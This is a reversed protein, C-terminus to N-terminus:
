SFSPPIVIATTHDHNILRIIGFTDDKVCDFTIEPTLFEGYQARLTFGSMLKGMPAFIHVDGDDDDSRVQAVIGLYPPSDDSFEVHEKSTGSTATNGTLAAYVALDKFAFQCKIQAAIIRSHARLIVDDGELRKSQTEITVEFSRVGWVDLAEAYDNTANRVALKLDNVGYPITEVPM